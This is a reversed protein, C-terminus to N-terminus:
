RRVLVPISEEFIELSNTMRVESDVSNRPNGQEDIVIELYRESVKNHLDAHDVVFYGHRVRGFFRMLVSGNPLLESAIPNGHVRLIRAQTEAQSPHPYYGPM